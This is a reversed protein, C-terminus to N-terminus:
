IRDNKRNEEPISFKFNLPDIKEKDHEISVNNSLYKSNLSKEEEIINPNTECESKRKKERLKQRLLRAKAIHVLNLKSSGNTAETKSTSEVINIKQNNTNM